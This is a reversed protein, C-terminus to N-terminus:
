GSFVSCQISFVPSQVIVVCGFSILVMFLVVVVAAM